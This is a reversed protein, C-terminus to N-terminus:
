TEPATPASTNSPMTLVRCAQVLFIAFAVGVLVQTVFLLHLVGFITLAALVFGAFEVVLVAALARLERQIWLSAAMEFVTIVVGVGVHVDKLPTDIKYTFSSLLVLLVLVSYGVLVVRLRHLRTNSPVVFRSAWYTLAAPLILAVSYPVVTKLHVGFNSIGGENSRLVYHPSLVVCLALFLAFGLQGFLVLRVV